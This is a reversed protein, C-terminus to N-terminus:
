GKIKASWDDLMKEVQPGWVDEGKPLDDYELVNEGLEFQGQRTRVLDSMIALSGVAKGLDHCLSRVYFGSTVTMRLKAAPPQPAAETQGQNSPQQSEEKAEEDEGGHVIAGSMLTSERRKRAPSNDYVADDEVEELKRKLGSGSTEEPEADGQAEETSSQDLNLVKEAVVKEEMDAQREPWRFEHKGGNMWELMELELVEVPREKIEVPLEKGDRAYEYLRKGEFRLASFIPPKQMIKGRFNELAGKVVDESVHSFDKRGVVKGEQDYSDTAVGFLVVAEYTKTCELFQQLEKTGKGIGTVLVGKAAVDLTGGHGIKVQPRGRKAKSRRKRQAQGEAERLERERSLYPAFLRSPEFFRQLDRLVQASSITAPKNVASSTHTSKVSICCTKL